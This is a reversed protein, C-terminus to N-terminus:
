PGRPWKAWLCRNGLQCRRVAGIVCLQHAEEVCRSASPPAFFFVTAASGTNWGGHLLRGGPNRRRFRFLFCTNKECTNKKEKQHKTHPHTSTHVCTPLRVRFM